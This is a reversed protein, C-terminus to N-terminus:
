QLTTQLILSVLSIIKIQIIAHSAHRYMNEAFVNVMYVLVWMQILFHQIDSSSNVKLFGGVCLGLEITSHVM